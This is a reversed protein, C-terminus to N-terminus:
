KYKTILTPETFLLL